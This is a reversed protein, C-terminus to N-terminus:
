NICVANVPDDTPSDGDFSSDGADYIGEQPSYIVPSFANGEDDSSYIVDLDGEARLVEQLQKIYQKLKMTPKAEYNRKM